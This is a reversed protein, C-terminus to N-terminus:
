KKVKNLLIELALNAQMNAILSIRPGTLIDKDSPKAKKDYIIYLNGMKKTQIRENNGYGTVGSAAIIPTEPLNKQINEIFVTKTEAKDLAEIILDANKFFSPINNKELKKNHTTIKTEPTIKKINETIATTKNKGIQDLFYYQRNLNSKEVKDYDVLILKGIGTRALSVAANSGLGGLGAIGITYRKIKESFKKQKNVM